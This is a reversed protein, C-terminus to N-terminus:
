RAAFPVFALAFGARATGGHGAQPFFLGLLQELFVAFLAPGRWGRLASRM